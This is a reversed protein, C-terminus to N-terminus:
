SGIGKVVKSGARAVQFAPVRRAVVSEVVRPEETVVKSGPPEVAAKPIGAGGIGDLIVYKVADESAEKANLCEVM